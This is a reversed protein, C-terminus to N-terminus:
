QGQRVRERHRSVLTFIASVGVLTFLVGSLWEHHTFSDIAGWAMLACMAVDVFLSFRSGAVIPAKM